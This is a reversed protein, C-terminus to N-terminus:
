KWLPKPKKKFAKKYWPLTQYTIIQDLYVARNHPNDGSLLAIALKIEM